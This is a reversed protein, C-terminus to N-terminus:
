RVEGEEVCVSVGVLLQFTQVSLRPAGAGCCVLVALDFEDSADVEVHVADLLVRCVTM